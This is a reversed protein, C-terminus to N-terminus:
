KQVARLFASVDVAEEISGIFLKDFADFTVKEAPPSFIRKDLANVIGDACQVAHEYADETMNFPALCADSVAKPLNYYGLEFTADQALEGELLYRYLPLQLDTWAKPKDTGFQMFSQHHDRVKGWHTKNPSKANDATKFDIVRYCNTPPHYDVRDISGSLQIGAITRKFNKEAHVIQWGEGVSQAHFRAYAGLRQKASDLQIQIPLLLDRGFNQHAYKDVQEHLWATLIEVDTSGVLPEERSLQYLVKHILNGFDGPTLETKDPNIEDMGFVKKLLYRFPCALYDRFATVSIKKLELRAKWQDDPSPPRLVFGPEAAVNVTHQTAEKFLRGARQVM